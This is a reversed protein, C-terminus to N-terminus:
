ISAPKTLGRVLSDEFKILTWVWGFNRRSEFTLRTKSRRMRYRYCPSPVPWAADFFRILYTIEGRTTGRLNQVGFRQLYMPRRGKGSDSTWQDMQYRSRCLTKCAKRKVTDEERGRRRVWLPSLLQSQIYGAQSM